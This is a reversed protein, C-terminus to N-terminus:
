ADGHVKDFAQDMAQTWLKHMNDAFAKDAEYQRMFEAAHPWMEAPLWAIKGGAAVGYRIGRKVIRLPEVPPAPNMGDM